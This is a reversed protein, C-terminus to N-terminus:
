EEITEGLNDKLNRLQVQSRVEIASPDIAPDVDILLYFDIYKVETLDAPTLPTADTPYGGTYYTFLAQAGNQIGRSIVTAVETNVPYSVPTGVPEIVGRVLDTGSLEYRLREVAADNDVNAYFVIRQPQMEVLPYAGTDAYQTERLIKSIRKLQLRAVETSRQQLYTTKYLPYGAVLFRLLAGMLLSSLAAVIIIEVVTFGRQRWDM